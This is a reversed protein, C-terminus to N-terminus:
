ISCEKYRSSDDFGRADGFVALPLQVEFVESSMTQVAASVSGREDEIVRELLNNMAGELEQGFDLRKSTTLECRLIWDLSVGSTKFEPTANSPIALNFCVRDSSISNEHQVSHVKRSIRSISAQSRLAITADIREMTELSVLLSYCRAEFKDCDITIPVIEGLRYAPRAIMVVAMRNGSRAIEYRNASLKSSGLHNSQQIALAIADEATASEEGAGGPSRAGTASPSLLGVSSPRRPAELLHCVYSLFDRDPHPVRTKSAVTRSFTAEKDSDRIPSVVAESHLMVHPSMLDHSMTQGFGNVGPLVRFSFDFHRVVHRQASETARQVGIVVNYSFRAAKGKYTPPLGLPLRYSYSYSQSQGPELRLDIFLLTQPTSILPIWKSDNAKGKISSMESGGLLGGLSEGIANLGLSGLLGSRRKAIESRVVGGGGQNGIVAKEKVKDFPSTNVLSPDVTFDGTINSYGMLLTEPLRHSTSSLPSFHQRQPNWQHTGQSIKPTAYESALTDSSDNSIACKEISSRPTGDNSM